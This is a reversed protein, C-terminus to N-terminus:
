RSPRGWATMAALLFAAAGYGAVISTMAASTMTVAVRNKMPEAM